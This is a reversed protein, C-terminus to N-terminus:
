TVPPTVQLLCLEETCCQGVGPSLLLVAGQLASLLYIRQVSFFNLVMDIPCLFGACPHISSRTLLHHKMLCGKMRFDSTLLCSFGCNVVNVGKKVKKNHGCQTMRVCAEWCALDAASFLKDWFNPSTYQVIFIYSMPPQIEARFYTHVAGLHWFPFNASSKCTSLLLCLIFGKWCLECVGCNGVAEPHGHKEFGLLLQWKCVLISSPVTWRDQVTDTVHFQQNFNNYRFFHFYKAENEKGFNLYCLWPVLWMFGARVM